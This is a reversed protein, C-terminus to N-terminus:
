IKTPFRSYLEIILQNAAEICQRKVFAVVKEFVHRTVFGYAGIQDVFTAWVHQRVFEFTLHDTRKNLDTIWQLNISEHTSNILAHFNQFMHGQFYIQNECYM